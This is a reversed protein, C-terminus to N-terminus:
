RAEARGLTKRMPGLFALDPALKELAGIAKRARQRWGPGRSLLDRWLRILDDERSDTLVEILAAAHRLDKAAKEPSHSRREAFVLLKHLAFRAPDPVNAMVAGMTNIIAAQHVDELIYELFRIPQLRINLDAHEQVDTKGGLMPTLFDLRLQRDTRSIFTATKEAPRFAPVPLFGAELSSLADGTDITREAPLALSLNRGAHAFDLDNTRDRESWTVGLANGYALFAHAGVLVGGARFFGIENLRRLIRFHSPIAAACGLAIASKALAAVESTDREKAKAILARVQESDRGVFIQRTAGGESDRFQYYWYETGKVVKRNFSGALDRVSRSLEQHRTVELIEAYATQAAASLPAALSM